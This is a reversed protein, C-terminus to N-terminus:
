CDRPLKNWHKTMRLNFSNNRMNLHFKKHELKNGNGRTRDRLAISFLRAGGDQCRDKMLKPRIIFGTSIVELGDEGPPLLVLLAVAEIRSAGDVNLFLVSCLYKNRHYSVVSTM